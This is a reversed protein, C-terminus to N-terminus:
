IDCCLAFKQGLLINMKETVSFSKSHTVLLKFPLNEAPKTSIGSYGTLCHVFCM